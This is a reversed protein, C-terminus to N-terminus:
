QGERSGEGSDADQMILKALMRPIEKEWKIM